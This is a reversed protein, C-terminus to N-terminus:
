KGPHIEKIARAGAASILWLFAEFRCPTELMNIGAEITHDDILEAYWWCWDRPDADPDGAVGGPEMADIWARFSWNSNRFENLHQNSPTASLFWSPLLDTWEKMSPWKGSLSKENVILMLETIRALFGRAEDLVAIRYRLVAGEKEQPELLRRREEKLVEIPRSYWWDYLKGVETMANEEIEHTM